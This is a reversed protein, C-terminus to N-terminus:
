YGREKLYVELDDHKLVAAFASPSYGEENEIPAAGLEILQEVAEVNAQAVAEMLPTFGCEGQANLDAGAAVLLQIAECDGWTAAIHLPTTGFLGLSGPDTVQVGSFYATEAIRQLLGEITSM